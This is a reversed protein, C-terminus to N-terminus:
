SARGRGRTRRDGSILMCGPGLVVIARLPPEDPHAANLKTIVAARSKGFEECWAWTAARLVLKDDVIAVPVAAGALLPGVIKAWEPVVSMQHPKAIM